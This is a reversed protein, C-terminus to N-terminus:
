SSLFSKSSETGRRRSSEMALNRKKEKNKEARNKEHSNLSAGSLQASFRVNEYRLPCAKRYSSDHLDDPTFKSGTAERNCSHHPFRATM